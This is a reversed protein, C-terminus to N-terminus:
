VLSNIVDSYENEHLQEKLISNSTIYKVLIKIGTTDNANKYFKLIDLCPSIAENDVLMTKYLEIIAKEHYGQAELCKAYFYTNMGVAPPGLESAKKFYREAEKYLKKKFYFFGFESYATSDLPDISLMEEMSVIANTENGYASNWKSLTQLSTYLSEKLVIEELINNPQQERLIKEMKNLCEERYEKSHEMVMAIGRYAYASLLMLEFSPEVREILNFLFNSYKLISSKDDIDNPYRYTCVILRNLILIKLKTSYDINNCIIEAYKRLGNNLPIISEKNLCTEILANQIVYNFELNTEDTIDPQINIEQIKEFLGYRLLLNIYNILKVCKIHKLNYTYEILNQCFNDFDIAFEKLELAKLEIFFGQKPIRQPFLICSDLNNSSSFLESYFKSNLTAKDHRIGLYGKSIHPHLM